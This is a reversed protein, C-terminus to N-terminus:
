EGVSAIFDLDSRGVGGTGNTKGFAWMAGNSISNAGVGIHITDDSMDGTSVSWPIISSDASVKGGSNGYVVFERLSDDIVDSPDMTESDTMVIQEEVVEIGAITATTTVLLQSEDGTPVGGELTTIVVDVTGGALDFSSLMDGNTVALWDVESQLIAETVNVASEASWEAGTTAVANLGIQGSNSRSTLAAAALVTGAFLAVMVLIMAVGRRQPLRKMRNPVGHM